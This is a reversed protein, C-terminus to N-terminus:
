LLVRRPLAPGFWFCCLRKPASTSNLPRWLRAFGSKFAILSFSFLPGHSTYISRVRKRAVSLQQQALSHQPSLQTSRQSGLPHDYCSHSAREADAEFSAVVSLPTRTSRRLGQLVAPPAVVGGPPAFPAGHWATMANEPRLRAGTVDRPPPPTESISHLWHSATSKCIRRL